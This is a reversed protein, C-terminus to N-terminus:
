WFIALTPQLFVVGWIPDTRVFVATHGWQARFLDWHVKSDTWFWLNTVKYSFCVFFKSQAIEWVFGWKENLYRHLGCFRRFGWFRLFDCFIASKPWPPDGRLHESTSPPARLHESTSPPGRLDESAGRLNKPHNKHTKTNKTTKSNKTSKTTKKKRNQCRTNPTKRM